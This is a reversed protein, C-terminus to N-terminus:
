ELLDRWAGSSMRRAPAQPPPEGIDEIDQLPGAEILNLLDWEAECVQRGTLALQTAHSDERSLQVGRLWEEAQDRLTIGRILTGMVRWWHFGVQDVTTGSAEQYAHLFSEISGLGGAGLSAPEGFRWPRACFWALDENAEGIRVWEWDIVGTLDTGDVLLNAMSYDGHVLVPPAPPPEHTTLWRYVWEFTAGPRDLADLRFRCGMLRHQRPEQPTSADIRHIAALAYGCQRLLRARGDQPDARDLQDVIRSYDSEGKVMENILFPFGLGDDTDNGALFRPVPVGLAAAHVQTTAQLKFSSGDQGTRGQYLILPRRYSPTVADFAWTTRRMTLRLVRLNDITIDAPDLRLPPALVAPLRDALGEPITM